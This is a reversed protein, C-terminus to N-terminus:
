DGRRDSRQGLMQAPRQGPVAPLFESLVDLQGDIRADPDVEGVRVGGPPAAGVLVGIAQQALVKGWPVSRARQFRSSRSATAAVRLLLGGFVSPQLVGASAM